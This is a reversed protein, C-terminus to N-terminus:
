GGLGLYKLEGDKQYMGYVNQPLKAFQSYNMSNIDVADIKGLNILGEPTLVISDGGRQYAYLLGTYGGLNEVVRTNRCLGIIATKEFLMGGYIENGYEDYRAYGWKQYFMCNNTFRWIQSCRKVMVARCVYRKNLMEYYAYFPDVSVHQAEKLQLVNLTPMTDSIWFFDAPLDPKILTRTTLDIVAKVAPALEGSKILIDLTNM